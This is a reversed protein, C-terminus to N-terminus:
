RTSSFERELNIAEAPGAMELRQDLGPDPFESHCYEADLELV